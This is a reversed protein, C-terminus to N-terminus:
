IYNEIISQEIIDDGLITLAQNPCHNVCRYCMSCNGGPVAKGEVVTINKMPCLEECKGCGVCRESRIKLLNVGKVTKNYFYLRQGFLGALHSFFGLGERSPRGNKMKEAAKAIKGEARKIILQNKELPKKLARVDSICDPMQLHIGGVVEAGYKKLLRAALGAGDGSFMGMTAILFIKKNKWISRNQIIFKRVIMPLNSYYIPYGLVVTDQSKIKEVTHLDELPLIEADHDALEMFKEMCYRTNGTGSFYVGLM